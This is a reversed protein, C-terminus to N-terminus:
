SIWFYNIASIITGLVISMILMPLVSKRDEKAVMIITPLALSFGVIGGKLWWKIGYLDINVIVFSLMFYFLFASLISYKDLKMKIMPIIDIAGILIGLLATLLIKNM